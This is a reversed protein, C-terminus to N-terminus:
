KQFCRFIDMALTEHFHNFTTTEINWFNRM